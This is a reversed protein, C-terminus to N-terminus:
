YIVNIMQPNLRFLTMFHDRFTHSKWILRILFIDVFTIQLFMRTPLSAITPERSLVFVGYVIFYMVYGLCNCYDFFPDFNMRQHIKIKMQLLIYFLMTLGIIYKLFHGDEQKDDM